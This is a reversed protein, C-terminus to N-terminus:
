AVARFTPPYARAIARAIADERSGTAVPEFIANIEADVLGASTESSLLLRAFPVFQSPTAVVDLRRRWELRAARAERAYWRADYYALWAAQSAGKYTAVKHASRASRASRELWRAEAITQRAGTRQYAEQTDFARLDAPDFIPAVSGLLVPKHAPKVAPKFLRTFLAIIAIM